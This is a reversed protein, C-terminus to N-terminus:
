SQEVWERQTALMAELERVLEARNRTRFQHVVRAEQFDLPLGRRRRGKDTRKWPASEVKLRYEGAADEEPRWEVDIRLRCHEHIASFLSSGSFYGRLVNEETPDVEFLTHWTVLWGAPIRLPQLTEAM